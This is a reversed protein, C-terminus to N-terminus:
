PQLPEMAKKCLKLQIFSRNMHLEWQCRKAFTVRSLAVLMLVLIYPGIYTWVQHRDGVRM